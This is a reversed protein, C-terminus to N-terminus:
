RGSSNQKSDRCAFFLFSIGGIGLLLTALSVILIEGLLYYGVSIFGALVLGSFTLLYPWDKSCKTYDKEYPGLIIKSVPSFKNRISDLRRRYKILNKQADIIQYIGVLAILFNATTLWWRWNCSLVGNNSKVIASFGVIAGFLLLVYNTISWQLRKSERVDDISLQYLMRLESDANGLEQRQGM